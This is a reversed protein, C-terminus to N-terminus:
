KWHAGLSRGVSEQSNVSKFYTNFTKKLKSVYHADYLGKSAEKKKIKV